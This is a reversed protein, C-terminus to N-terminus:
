QQQLFTTTPMDLQQSAGVQLSDSFLMGDTVAPGSPGLSGFSLFASLGRDLTPAASFASGLLSPLLFAPGSASPTRAM